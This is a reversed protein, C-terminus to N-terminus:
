ALDHPLCFPFQCDTVRQLLNNVAGEIHSVTQNNFTVMERRTTVSSSALPLLATNVYQQWLYCILDVSRLITLPQLNPESKADAADLRAQASHIHTVM